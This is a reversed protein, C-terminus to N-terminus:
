PPFAQQRSDDVVDGTEEFPDPAYPGDTGPGRLWVGAAKLPHAITDGVATAEFGSHLMCHKCQPHRGPGYANWDTEEMLARFSSAYNESLLYCPRQWGLVNRTVSGWPTCAYAQNGSLFDLFLSSQNFKWGRGKGLKFIARFLAKSQGRELFLDADPKGPYGYAPSLTIGSAGLRMIEDFLGAIEEPLVGRYLTCNIVFRFGESRLLKMAELAANFIGPRDALRDHLDRNGDIHISFSLYPSPRYDALRESLLLGNTCLYVFKRRRVLGEVIRPMDQHILPEGGAITVVPAGCHRVAEFCEDASMRLDLIEKSHQIKGCGICSLNCRFLPELMLVLPYRRDRRITRGAIYM